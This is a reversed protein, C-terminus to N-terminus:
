IESSPVYVIIKSEIVNNSHLCHNFCLFKLQIDTNSFVFHSFYSDFATVSAHNHHLLSLNFTIPLCMEEYFLLKPKRPPSHKLHKM